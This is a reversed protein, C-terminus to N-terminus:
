HVRLPSISTMSDNEAFLDEELTSYERQVRRKPASPTKGFLGDDFNSKLENLEAVLRAKRQSLGSLTKHLDRSQAHSTKM